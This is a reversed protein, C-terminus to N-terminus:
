SNNKWWVRFALDLDANEPFKFWKRLDKVNYPAGQIGREKVYQRVKAVPYLKNTPTQLPKKFTSPPPKEYAHILDRVLGPSAGEAKLQEGRTMMRDELEQKVVHPNLGPHSPVAMPPEQAEM